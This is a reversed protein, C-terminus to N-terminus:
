SMVPGVSWICIPRINMMQQKKPQITKVTVRSYFDFRLISYNSSKEPPGTTLFGGTLAPSM